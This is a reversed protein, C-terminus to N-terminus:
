GIACNGIVPADPASQRSQLRNEFPAPAQDQDTVQATRRTMGGCVRREPHVVDRSPQRFQDAPRDHFGAVRDARFSLGGALLQLGATNHHELVHPEIRAFLLAVHFEGFPQRGKGIAVDVIGEAGAVAVLSRHNRYGLLKIRSAARDSEKDLLLEPDELGQHSRGLM